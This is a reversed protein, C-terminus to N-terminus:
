NTSRMVPSTMAFSLTSHEINCKSLIRTLKPFIIGHVALNKALKRAVEFRFLINSTMSDLTTFFVQAKFVNEPSTVEDQSNSASNDDAFRKPIKRRKAGFSVEMGLNEAVLKCEALIVDWRERLKGLDEMLSQM